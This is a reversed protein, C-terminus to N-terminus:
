CKCVQTSSGVALQNCNGFDLGGAHAPTGMCGQQLQRTGHHSSVPLRRDTRIRLGVLASNFTYRSPLTKLWRLHGIKTLLKNAHSDDDYKGDRFSTWLLLWVFQDCCSSRHYESCKSCILMSM